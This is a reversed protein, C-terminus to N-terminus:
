LKIAAVLVGLLATGAAILKWTLARLEAEIAAMRADLSALRADIPDVRASLELHLWEKTVLDDWGGPPRDLMLDAEDM